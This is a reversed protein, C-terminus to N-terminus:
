WVFSKVIRPDLGQDHLVIYDVGRTVQLPLASAYGLCTYRGQGRSEM